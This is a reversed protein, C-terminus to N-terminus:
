CRLLRMHNHTHTLILSLPAHWGMAMAFEEQIIWYGIFPSAIMRSVLVLVVAVM